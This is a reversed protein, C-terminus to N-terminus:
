RFFLLFQFRVKPTPITAIITIITERGKGGRVKPTPLCVASSAYRLLACNEGHKCGMSIYRHTTKQMNVVAINLTVFFVGCLFPLPGLFFTEKQLRQNTGYCRQHTFKARGAEIPLGFPDTSEYYLKEGQFHCLNM